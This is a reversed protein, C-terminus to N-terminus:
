EAKKRMSMMAADTKAADARVRIRIFAYAAPFALVAVLMGLLAGADGLVRSARQQSSREEKSSDVFTVVLGLAAILCWAGVVALTATPLGLSQALLAVVVCNLIWLVLLVELNVM